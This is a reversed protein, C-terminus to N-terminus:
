QKLFGYEYVKIQIKDALKKMKDKLNELLQMYKEDSSKANMKGKENRGQFYEKIDYLSANVNCNPQQHYYKWLELGANFVEKAEPSFQLPETRQTQNDFINSHSDSKLKGKIFNSMFNSEFSERANVEQETFPIWHNTGYKSSIKNQGHFLTYAM